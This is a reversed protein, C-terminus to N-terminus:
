RAAAPPTGDPAGARLRSLLDDIEDARATLGAARAHRGQIALIDLEDQFKLEAIARQVALADVTTAAANYRMTLRTLEAQFRTRTERIERTLPTDPAPAPPALSDPAAKAGPAAAPPVSEAVPASGAAAAVLLAGSLTVVAACRRVLRLM